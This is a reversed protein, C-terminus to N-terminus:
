DQFLIEVLELVEDGGTIDIAKVFGIGPAYFKHELVDPELPTSEAIQLCDGFTSFPVVVRQNFGLVEARDEAIGPATEQDYADGTAPFAKMIIGPRAGDVGAKWSGDTSVVDGDEIEKSDEGFYWVNGMRDQAFWDLTDEALEGDVFERDRVVTVDVGQIQKTRDTIAFRSRVSEGDSEGEYIYTTGPILPFYPNDITDVYADSPLSFSVLKVVEDGGTQEQAMVFGIGPAYFKHELSGPELPNTEATQLCGGFTGFPVNASEALSLVEARDEAVGPAGEQQYDDGVKPIAKMIIGPRAGDVGAIWSDDAPVLVGDEVDRSKEGFYWVNGAKDQAFYDLTDEVLEGNVFERERVVTTTVGQIERTNRTVALRIRIDDGDEQGKYVYVSGPIMPLYPNDIVEAFDAAMLRRDELLEVASSNSLHRQRKM